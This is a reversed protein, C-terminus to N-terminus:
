QISPPHPPPPLPPPPPNPVPLPFFPPSPPTERFTKVQVLSPPALAFFLAAPTGPAVTVVLRDVQLSPYPSTAAPCAPPACDSTFLFAYTGAVPAALGLAANTFVGTTASYSIEQCYYASTSVLLNQTSSAALAGPPCWAALGGQVQLSPVGSTAVLISSNGTYTVTKGSAQGISYELSATVNRAQDWLGGVVNGGADRLTAVVDRLYVVSTASYLASDVCVGDSARRTCTTCSCM